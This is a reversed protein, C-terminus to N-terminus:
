TEEVDIEVTSIQGIEPDYQAEFFFVFDVSRRVINNTVEVSEDIKSFIFKAQDTASAESICKMFYGFPLKDNQAFCWLSGRVKALQRADKIKCNADQIRIFLCEQEHADSPADYTTKKFQFVRELTERLTAEFM